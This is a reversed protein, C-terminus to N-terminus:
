FWEGHNRLRYSWVWTPFGNGALGGTIGVSDRYLYNKQYLKGLMTQLDRCGNAGIIKWVRSVKFEEAYDDVFDRNLMDIHGNEKIIRARIWQAKKIFIESEFM